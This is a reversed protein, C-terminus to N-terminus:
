DVINSRVPIVVYEDNGQKRRRWDCDCSGCSLLDSCFHPIHPMDCGSLGNGPLDCGAPVDCACDLFGAQRALAGHAAQPRYRRYAVGCKELRKDLVAIGCWVGYRRIARYGLASCSGHGSASAYASCFGKRPSVFRQYFRIAGLALSKM